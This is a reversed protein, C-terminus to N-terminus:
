VLVPASLRRTKCKGCASPCAVKGRVSDDSGYGDYGIGGTSDTEQFSGKLKCRTDPDQGVWACGRKITWHQQTSELYYWNVDDACKVNCKCTDVCKRECNRNCTKKRKKNCKKQCWKNKNLGDNRAACRHAEERCLGMVSGRNNYGAASAANYVVAGDRAIYCGNPADQNREVRYGDFGNHRHLGIRACGRENLETGAQCFSEQPYWDPKRCVHHVDCQLDGAFDTHCQLPLKEANNTPNRNHFIVCFGVGCGENSEYCGYPKEPDNIDSFATAEFQNNYYMECEEMNLHLECDEGVPALSIDSAEYPAWTPTITPAPTPNPTPEPTPADTPGMDQSCLMRQHPEPVTSIADLNPNFVTTHGEIDHYCGYPLELSHMVQVLTGSQAHAAGIAACENQTLEQNEGCLEGSDQQDFDPTRCAMKLYCNIYNASGDVVSTV